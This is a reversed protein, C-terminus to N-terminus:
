PAIEARLLSALRQVGEDIREAPLSAFCLRMCHAAQGPDGACFAAGPVFAVQETAVARRLLEVTDSGAPLRAWVFMGGTPATWRVERPFYREMARLMTDRRSRYEARLGALHAPMAGTDIFESLSRQTLTTVDLDSGHKLVSLTPVLPEPVVMWGVRLGPAFIKSFSGVYLVWDADLSRLAPPPAEDYSLFGYADDEVIPVEFRRALEVLRLRREPALSVGLPNHSAPIVYVFAPRAGGELMAELADVDLGGADVPVTLIDPRQPRIAALIGDYVTTEVAVQGGDALLLRSLLSMGQQAGTTLFIQEDRCRVGREAMLAVIQRKLPAYPVAYQLTLPDAQVARRTADLYADGPLLELAPMGLAFSLLGPRALLPLIERLESPAIARAWPALKREISSRAPADLLPALTDTM